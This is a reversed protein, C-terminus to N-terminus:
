LRGPYMDDEWQESPPQYEHIKDFMKVLCEGCINRNVKSHLILCTNSKGCYSCTYPVTSIGITDNM